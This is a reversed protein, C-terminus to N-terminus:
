TCGTPWARRAPGSSSRTTPITTTSWRSDCPAAATPGPGPHSKSARTRIRPADWVSSRTRTRRATPTPSYLDTDLGNLVNRVRDPRVGFDTVITRASEESSTFIRDIRRAVFSQMGIPYFMMSGVAERFSEDRIFSARRDVTLPHHITSM